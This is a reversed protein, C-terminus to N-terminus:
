NHKLKIINESKLKKVVEDALSDVLTKVGAFANGATISTAVWAFQGTSVDLLRTEFKVRPKSVYFGGFEQTYGKYHFYNGYLYGSGSSYTSRPIYVQSEWYSKFAIILIGDIKYKELIDRIEEKSYDKVPPILDISPYSTAGKSKLKNTFTYEILKRMGIDYYVAFVLLTRFTKKSLQPNRVSSVQTTACNLIFILLPVLLFKM